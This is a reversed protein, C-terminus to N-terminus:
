IILKIKYFEPPGVITGLGAEWYENLFQNSKFKVANVLYTMSSVLVLFYFSLSIKGWFDQNTLHSKFTLEGHSDLKDSMEQLFISFFFRSSIGM